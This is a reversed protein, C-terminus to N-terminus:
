TLIPAHTHAKIQAKSKLGTSVHWYIPPLTLQSVASELALRMITPQCGTSYTMALEINTQMIGSSM